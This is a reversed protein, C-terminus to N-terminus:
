HPRKKVNADLWEALARRIADSRSPIPSGQDSRWQDLKEVLESEALLNLRIRDDKDAM